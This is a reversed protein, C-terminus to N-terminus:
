VNCNYDMESQIKVIQATSTGITQYQVFILYVLYTNRDNSFRNRHFKYKHNTYQYLLHLLLLLHCYYFEKLASLGTCKKNKRTIM